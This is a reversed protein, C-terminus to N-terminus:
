CARNEELTKWNVMRWVKAKSGQRKASITGTETSLFLASPAGGCLVTKGVGSDGYVLLNISENFDSLERIAIPLKVSTKAM